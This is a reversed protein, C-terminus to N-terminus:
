VAALKIFHLRQNPETNRMCRVRTRWWHGRPVPHFDFLQACLLVNSLGAAPPCEDSVANNSVFIPFSWSPCRPTYM